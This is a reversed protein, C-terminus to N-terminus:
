ESELLELLKEDLISIQRRGRSLENELEQLRLRRPEMREEGGIRSREIDELMRRTESRPADVGDRIEEKLRDQHQERMRELAELGEEAKRIEAETSSLKQELPALRNVWLQIRQLVQDVRRLQDDMQQLRVLQDLAQRIGRLEQGVNAPLPEAPTPQEAVSAFVTASVIVIAVVCHRLPKM